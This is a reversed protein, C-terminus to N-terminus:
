DLDERNGRVEIRNPAGTLHRLELVAKRHRALIARSLVQQSMNIILM